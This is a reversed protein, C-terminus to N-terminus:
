HLAYKVIERYEDNSPDEDNLDDFLAHFKLRFRYRQGTLPSYMKGNANLGYSNINKNDRLFTLLDNDTAVVRVMGEATPLENVIRDCSFDSFPWVTAQVDGKFLQKIRDNDQPVNVELFDVIDGIFGITCFELMIVGLVVRTGEELNVFTFGIGSEFRIVNPGSSAPPEAHIGSSVLM